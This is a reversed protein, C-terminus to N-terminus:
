RRPRRQKPCPSEEKKRSPKLLAVAGQQIFNGQSAFVNRRLRGLREPDIRVLNKATIEDRLAWLASWM